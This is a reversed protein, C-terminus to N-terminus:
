RTAGFYRIASTRLDDVLSGVEAPSTLEPGMSDAVGSEGRWVRMVNADEDFTIVWPKDEPETPPRWDPDLGVGSPSARPFMGQEQAAALGMGIMLVAAEHVDCGLYKAANELEYLVLDSHGPKGITLTVPDM